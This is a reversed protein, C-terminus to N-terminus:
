NLSHPLSLRFPAIEAEFTKGLVNHMQYSGRMHGSSTKLVVGSSYQFHEGPHLIPQEGVVGPGRVEQVEGRADVVQWHRAMLQVSVHSENRIHVTYEFAYHRAAPLSREPVYQSRVDIRIGRTVARSNDRLPEPM